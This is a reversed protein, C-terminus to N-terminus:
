NRGNKKETGRVSTQYSADDTDMDALPQMSDPVSESLESAVQELLATDAARQKLLQEQRQAQRQAEHNRYYGLAPVLAMVCLVAAVAWELFVHRRASQRRAQAGDLQLPSRSQREAADHVATRFHSIANALGELERKTAADSEPYFDQVQRNTTERTM